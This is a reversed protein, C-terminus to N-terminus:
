KTQKLESDTLGDSKELSTSIVMSMFRRNAEDDPLQLDAEVDSEENDFGTLLPDNEYTPLLYRPDKWFDADDSVFQRICRNQEMHATLQSLSELSTGCSFCKCLSSQHRIYNILVIVKYFDLEKEQRIASLDFGHKEKMHDLTDKPSPLVNDDFLCMTPEPEEEEWDAWSEDRREEDSEYNDHEFNEWNKGPELYNIVYFRDYQRNKAAIKFHKKKRMHKRLVTPNTLKAELMDLFENVGVLNDPLGINFNHESFMHKFLATRNDSVIKCFLCKRPIKSDHDREHQQTKLVENVLEEGGAEEPDEYSYETLLKRTLETAWKNLYADLAMYMHHFNKFAIHHESRLHTALSTTDLFPEVSPCSDFPCNIVITTHYPPVPLDIPDPRGDDEEDEETDDDEPLHYPNGHQAEVATAKSKSELEKISAKNSSKVDKTSSKARGLSATGRQKSQRRAHNPPGSRTAVTQWEGDAM